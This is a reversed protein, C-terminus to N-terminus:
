FEIGERAPTGVDYPHKCKHMETVYDAANIFSEPANRGTLILELHDPKNYILEDLQACDLAHYRYASTAEDLILMDYLHSCVKECADNLLADHEQRIAAKQTDDMNVFFGSDTALRMVDINQIQELTHLEGCDQGKFFQVILVRRGCGAARIALGLAATTKGKGDGTYVHICGRM